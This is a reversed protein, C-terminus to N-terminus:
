SAYRNRCRRRRSVFRKLDRAMDEAGPYRARRGIACAQRVIADLGLPVAPNMRCCSPLERTLKLKGLERRSSPFFPFRGTLLVFLTMGLAYVDGGPAYQNAGAPLQEPSRYLLAGAPGADPHLNRDALNLASGLDTLILRGEADLLINGPNIDRHVIGARHLASVADVVSAFRAALEILGQPEQLDGRDQLLGEANEGSHLNMLFYPVRGVEGQGQVTQLSPHRLRTAFERELRLSELAQAQPSALDRLTKLAYRRGGFLAAVEYVSTTRGEHLLRAIRHEGFDSGALLGSPPQRPKNGDCPEGPFRPVHPFRSGQRFLEYDDM